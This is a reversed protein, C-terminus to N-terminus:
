TADDPVKRAAHGTDGRLNIYMYNLVSGRSVLWILVNKEPDDGENHASDVAYVGEKYNLLVSAPMRQGPTFDGSKLHQVTLPSLPSAM